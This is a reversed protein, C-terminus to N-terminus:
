STWSAAYQRRAHRSTSWSTGPAARLTPIQRTRTSTALRCRSTSGGSGKPSWKPGCRMRRGHCCANRLCGALRSLVRDQAAPTDARVRDPDAEGTTERVIDFADGVVAQLRVLEADDLAVQKAWRALADTTSRLNKELAGRLDQAAGEPNGIAALRNRHFERVVQHPVALRDGLKAFIALLDDTTQANYRYLNLLVNADVAVLATTLAREVDATTLIRYGEFGDFM